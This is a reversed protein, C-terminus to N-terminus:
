LNWWLLALALVSWTQLTRRKIVDVSAGERNVVFAEEGRHVKGIQPLDVALSQAIFAICGIAVSALGAHPRYEFFLMVGVAAVLLYGFVGGWSLTLFQAVNHTRIDFSSMLVNKYGMLPIDAGSVRAGLYHGWEHVVYCIAYSGVFGVLGAVAASYWAAAVSHWAGLAAVLAAVAVLLGLDRLLWGGLGTM